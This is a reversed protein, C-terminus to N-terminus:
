PRSDGLDGGGVLNKSLVKPEGVVRTAGAEASSRGCDLLEALGEVFHVGPSHGRGSLGTAAEARTPDFDRRWSHRIPVSSTLITASPVRSYDASTLWIQAAGSPARKPTPYVGEAFPCM